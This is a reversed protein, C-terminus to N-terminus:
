RKRGSDTRDRRPVLAWGDRSFQWDRVVRGLVVLGGLFSVVYMYRREWPEEVVIRDGDITRPGTLTGFVYVQSDVAAADRDLGTVTLEEIGGTQLRVVVPDTDVVTGDIVVREGVHSDPEMIVETTEQDRISNSPMEEVSGFSALSWALTLLLVLLLGGRLVDAM